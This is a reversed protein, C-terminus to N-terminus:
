QSFVGTGRNYHSGSVVIGSSYTLPPIASVIDRASANGEIGEDGREVAALRRLRNALVERRQCEFLYVSGDSEIQTVFFLDIGVDQVAFLIEFAADGVQALAAGLEVRSQLARTFFECLM